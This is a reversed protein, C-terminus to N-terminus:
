EPHEELSCTVMEHIEPRLSFLIPSSSNHFENRNQFSKGNCASRAHKPTHMNPPLTFLATSFENCRSAAQFTLNITIKKKVPKM